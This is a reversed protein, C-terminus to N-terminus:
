SADRLPSPRHPWCALRIGTAAGLDRVGSLFVGVGMAVLVWRLTPSVAVPAVVIATTSAWWGFLIPLFQGLMAGYVIGMVAHMAREGPYVGGLPKRVRDEVIFDALTIAIESALLLALVGSFAGRWEIWPLTAFVIAYIFDRAAHLKLESAALPGLAPLRARIEHYYLTDSAGLMGQAFLLWLVVIM